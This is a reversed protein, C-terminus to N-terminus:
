VEEFLHVPPAPQDDEERHVAPPALGARWKRRRGRPVIAALGAIAVAAVLVAGSLTVALVESRSWDSEAGTRKDALGPLAAPKGDVVADAVADSPNVIGNGYGVADVGGAAPTATAALRQAVEVATLRPWRSRVLAATASVFATAFSTGDVVTLGSARQTTVVAVGPAVLDVYRTPPSRQWRVGAPDIAGVGIVGAYAAPYPTALASEDNGVAAVVVVNHALANEVARRLDPQDTYVVLSVNIVSASHSVAWDIAKALAAPGGSGEDENVRVPVITAGPAVGRFGADTSRQAAIIGAVQTGHGTCDSTGNTTSDLFDAGPAVRGRLQPHTADVGSDLVAVTVDRGTSLPWVREPALMQQAWPVPKLAEGPPTCNRAAPAAPAAQAAALAAAAHGTLLAATTLAALTAHGVGHTWRV